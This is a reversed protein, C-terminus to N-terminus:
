SSFQDLQVSAEPLMSHPECMYVNNRKSVKYLKLFADTQSYKEKILLM